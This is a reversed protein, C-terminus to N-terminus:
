FCRAHEYYAIGGRHSNLGINLNNALTLYGAPFDGMAEAQESYGLMSVLIKAAEAYTINANPSFNRDEPLSVAGIQYLAYVAGFAPNTEDVDYFVQEGGDADWNFLQVALRHM